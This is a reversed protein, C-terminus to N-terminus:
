KSLNKLQHGKDWVFSALWMLGAIPHVLISLINEQFIIFTFIRYILLLFLIGLSYFPHIDFFLIPFIWIFCQILYTATSYDHLSGAKQWVKGMKQWLTKLDPGLYLSFHKEGFCLKLGIARSRFGYFLSSKWNSNEPFLEFDVKRFAICLDSMNLLPQKFSRTLRKFSLLSILALHPNLTYLCDVTVNSSHVQPIICYPGKTDALLKEVGFLGESDFEINLDTVLISELPSELSIRNIVDIPSEIHTNYSAVQFDHGTLELIQPHDMAVIFHLDHPPHISKVQNLFYTDLFDGSKVEILVLVGAGSSAKKIQRATLGNKIIIYIQRAALLFFIFGIM